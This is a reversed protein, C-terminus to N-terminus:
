CFTLALYTHVEEVLDNEGWSEAERYRARERDAGPPNTTLRSQITPGM